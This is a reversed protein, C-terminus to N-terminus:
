QDHNAEDRQQDGNVSRDAIGDPSKVEGILMQPLGCSEALSIALPLPSSIVDAKFCLMPEASRLFVTSPVSVKAETPLSFSLSSSHRQNSNTVSAFMGPESLVLLVTM